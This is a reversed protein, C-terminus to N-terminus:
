NYNYIQSIHLDFDNLNYEKIVKKFKNLYSVKIKDVNKIKEMELINKITNLKFDNNNDIYKEINKKISILTSTSTNNMNNLNENEYYIDLVPIKRLVFINNTNFIEKNDIINKIDNTLEKINKNELIINRSINNINLEINIFQKEILNTFEYNLYYFIYIKLLLPINNSKIFLFYNIINYYYTIINNISKYIIDKM